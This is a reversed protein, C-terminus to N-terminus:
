CIICVGLKLISSNTVKEIEEQTASLCAFNELGLSSKFIDPQQHYTQTTINERSSKNNHPKNHLPPPDSTVQVCVPPWRRQDAIVSLM